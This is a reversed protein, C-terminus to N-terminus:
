CVVRGLLFLVVFLLCEFYLLAKNNIILIFLLSALLKLFVVSVAFSSFALVV